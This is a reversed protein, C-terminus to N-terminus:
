HTALLLNVQGDLFRKSLWIAIFGAIGLWLVFSVAFFRGSRNEVKRFEDRLAEAQGIRALAGCFAEQDTAGAKKRACVEDRLHSELEDLVVPSKVGGAAMRKRWEAITHELDRM